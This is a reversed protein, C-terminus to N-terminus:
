DVVALQEPQTHDGLSAKAETPVLVSVQSKAVTNPIFASLGEITEERGFTSVLARYVSKQHFELQFEHLQSYSEFPFRECESFLKLASDYDKEYQESTSPRRENLHM